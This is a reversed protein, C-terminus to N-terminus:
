NVHGFLYAVGGGKDQGVGPFITGRWGSPSPRWTVGGGGGPFTSGSYVCMKLCLFQVAFCLFVAYSLRHSSRLGGGRKTLTPGPAEFLCPTHEAFVVEPLRACM